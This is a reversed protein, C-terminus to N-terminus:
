REGPDRNAGMTGIGVVVLAVILVLALYMALMACLVVIGSPSLWAVGGAVLAFLAALVAYRLM